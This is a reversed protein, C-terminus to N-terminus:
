LLQNRVKMLIEGLRNKGKGSVNVGWYVDGWSNKEELVANGTERLLKKLYEDNSFKSFVLQEMISDKISEWDSPLPAQRGLKKVQSATVEILDRRVEKRYKAAQYAHEVSPYRIGDYEVKRPCPWFNSLFRYEGFFGSILVSNHVVYYPVKDTRGSEIHEQQKKLAVKLADIESDM